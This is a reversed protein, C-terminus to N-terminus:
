PVATAKPLLWWFATIIADQGSWPAGATWVDGLTLGGGGACHPGTGGKRLCPFWPEPRPLPPPPPGQRLWGAQLGPSGPVHVAQLPSSASVSGWAGGECM